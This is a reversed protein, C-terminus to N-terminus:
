EIADIGVCYCISSFSSLKSSERLHSKNVIKFIIFIEHYCFFVELSNIKLSTHALDILM